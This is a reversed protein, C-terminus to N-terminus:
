WCHRGMIEALPKAVLDAMAQNCQLIRSKRDLLCVADGIADFTAQWKLAASRLKEEALKRNTIDVLGGYLRNSEPHGPIKDCEAFSAVWVIGGNKHRLRLECASSSGPALGKVHKNYLGRDEETVLFGWSRRTKIEDLSYGTISKAAGALWDFDDFGDQTTTSSYSIDSTTSSIHRFREENERLAAEALKRETIVDFVAV